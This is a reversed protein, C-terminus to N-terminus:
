RRARPLPLGFSDEMFVDQSNVPTEGDAPQVREYRGEPGLVWSQTNDAMSTEFIRLAQQQLRNDMVPFVVEVRNYLNRRMIDASGMYVREKPPANHFYYIRSHELYRGVISRVRINESLGPVGPRLCCLGRVIL